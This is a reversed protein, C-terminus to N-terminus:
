LGQGEEKHPMDSDEAMINALYNIIWARRGYPLLIRFLKLFLLERSGESFKKKQKQFIQYFIKM